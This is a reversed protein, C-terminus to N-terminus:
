PVATSYLDSISASMDGTAPWAPLSPRGTIDSAQELLRTAVAVHDEADVLCRSPLVEPNGGVSTAVVGRGNVVADLLTYSCNEWVSLQAVVDADALAARADVYGPFTVRGDLGLRQVQAKLEAELPGIGAITLTAEAEEKAVLAFSDVLDDLRKEPALRALSLFRLGPAPQPTTSPPDVGNPIVVIEQRPHWKDRMADATARSVAIVRDFRRLRATHVIAMLRAQAGSSHYVADDAAIGHETTVLTVGRPTTLAAVVDAYSLHSHVVDPRLARITHRLSAVSARLGADPGFPATLVAGGAATVADALPGPPCLVVLRWGPLGARVVDLVHRAVGALDSVPVVWLATRRGTPGSLVM